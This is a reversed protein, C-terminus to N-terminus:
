EAMQAQPDVHALQSSSTAIAVSVSVTVNSNMPRQLQMHDQVGSTYM